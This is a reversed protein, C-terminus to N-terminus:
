YSDLSDRLQLILEILIYIVLKVFRLSHGGILTIWHFHISYTLSSM